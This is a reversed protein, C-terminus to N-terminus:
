RGALSRAMILVIAPVALYRLAWLWSSYTWPWRTGSLYEARRAPEDLRWAALLALGLGGIPLLVNSALFDMSAFWNWDPGGLWQLIKGFGAGFLWVSDSWAAPLGLLAIGAGAALAARLRELEHEEILHAVVVELMSIASSLAAIALLGFFLASWLAGGPMQGFAIPLSLFILGPGSDPALGHTFLIPFIILCALISIATDILAIVTSSLPIDESRALYSGYTLMAGLGISLSFFSHGLAALLALTDLESSRPMFTFEVAAGWGPLGLAHILLALMLLILVPMLLRSARELGRSVGGAVVAATIAMFLLHGIATAAPSGILAQYLAQATAADTTGSVGRFSLGLYHLTWGGVVSYYSLILASGLVGVWGIALWGRGSQGVSRVAAVTAKRTARGLMLEAVLVPLAILIVCGLYILIFLGGGNMGAIYPFKWISGLGVASGTAALIFGTRGSWQERRTDAMAHFGLGRLREFSAALTPIM